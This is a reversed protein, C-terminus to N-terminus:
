DIIAELIAKVTEPKSGLFVKVDEVSKDGIITVPISKVDALKAAQMGVTTSIDVETFELKAETLAKKVVKCGTCWPASYVIVDSM